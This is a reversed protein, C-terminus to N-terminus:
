QVVRWRAVQYGQERLLADCPGCDRKNAIPYHGSAGAHMTEGQNVLIQTHLWVLM